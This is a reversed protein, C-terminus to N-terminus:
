RWIGTLPRAHASRGLRPLGFGDEITRLLGYHSTAARSRSGPRVLPGLALAPVGPDVSDSEDFVVYVATDALKLLRPLFRRLWADGTSVPCDHM